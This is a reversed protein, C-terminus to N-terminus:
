SYNKVKVVYPLTSVPLLVIIRLKLIIGLLQYIAGWTTVQLKETLHVYLSHVRLRAAHSEVDIETGTERIYLNAIMCIPIKLNKSMCEKRGEGGTSELPFCPEGVCVSEVATRHPQRCTPSLPRPRALNPCLTRSNQFTSKTM